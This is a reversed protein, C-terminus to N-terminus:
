MKDLYKKKEKQMVGARRGWTYYELAADGAASRTVTAPMGNARHRMGHFWWELRVSGDKLTKRRAPKGDERHLNGQSDHRSFDARQRRPPVPDGGWLWWLVSGWGSM